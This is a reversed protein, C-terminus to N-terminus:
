NIRNFVDILSPYIEKFEQYRQEYKAALEEDPEITDTIHVFSDAATKVDPYEQCGVAALIAAGLAPGEESEIVDIKINLVNAIIKKWLPSKAGGGSIKSREIKIGLKKAIEFSDRLAFAVGELVAQYMDTQTTDMTMGTFTARAKPNNHPSREGMLYPLFFVKNEGLDQIKEQEEQFDKRGLIEEMWWKNCSAASLMCGMLHYNGDAHAFSHLANNEDVGFRDSSIFITGSTGLSINCRGAGVTGTGVAAAANDGAGAIVKVDVNMGLEDAVEPKLSGVVDFSEYLTPLQELSIGCIDVMEKSWCKNKVDMLLMGSADSYDSAFAGSLMYTLYDKPLMIKSIKEFNEPENKKVWLIKPATFGAFAINATHQSLVDKGIVQNLYDTEEGTRGDNWLIAPRIVRDEKDLMVLGHMQGGSSIGGIKSRDIGQTLEKIGEISQKMWDEPNQESWGPNPFSLPYEKSVINLISGKEDMLLLKVASTGLDIGIYYM